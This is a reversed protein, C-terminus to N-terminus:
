RQFTPGYLPLNRITGILSSTSTDDSKWNILGAQDDLLTLQFYDAARGTMSTKAYNISPNDLQIYFTKTSGGPIEVTKSGFDFSLPAKSSPRSDETLEGTDITVDGEDYVTFSTKQGEPNYQGSAITTFKISSTGDFKLTSSSLGRATVSFKFVTPNGILNYPSSLAVSEFKPYVRYIIHKNASVNSISNGNTVTGSEGVARFGDSTSGYFRNSLDLSFQIDQTAGEAKTKMNASVALELSSDQPVYPRNADTTAWTFNASATNGMTQGTTLTSGAKNKYTLYVTNVNAAANAKEGPDSTAVTLKEIYKGEGTSTLRFKSVAVNAQGWYIAQKTPTDSSLSASITGVPVTPTPTPTISPFITPTSSPTPTSLPAPTSTGAKLASLITKVYSIPIGFDLTSYGGKLFGVVEGKENVWPGGSGGGETAANTTLYLYNKACSTNLGMCPQGSSSIIGERVDVNLVGKPHGFVFVRSGVPLVAESSDGLTLAPLNQSVKIVAADDIANTGLVQGTLITNDKLKVEVTSCGEVVHHNTLIYGSNEFVFGSGVYGHCGIKVVSSSVIDRIQAVTVLKEAPPPAGQVTLADKLKAIQGDPNTVSLNYTLSLMGGPILVSIQTDSVVAYGPETGGSGFDVKAGNKFGSGKIVINYPTGALIRDPAVLDIRLVNSVPISTTLPSQAIIGKRSYNPIDRVSSYQSGAGYLKTEKTNICFVKKFFDSDDSVAQSGTTNVWRLNAVDENIVDLGFVREDKAECNRFLGSTIFADRTEISVKKIKDWGLHGYINFIEPNVFLRKFGNENVIYVDPDGTASIVDGEKLGFDSPKAANTVASFVVLITVFISIKLYNKM